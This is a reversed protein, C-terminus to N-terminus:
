LDRSFSIKKPIPLRERGIPYCDEQSFAKKQVLDKRVWVLHQESSVMAHRDPRWPPARLPPSFNRIARYLVGKDREKAPLLHSRYAVPTACGHNVRAPSPTGKWGPGVEFDKQRTPSQCLGSSMRVPSARCPSFLDHRDVLELDSVKKWIRRDLRSVVISEVM